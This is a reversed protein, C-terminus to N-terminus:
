NVELSGTNQHNKTEHSGEPYIKIKEIIKKHAHRVPVKEFTDEKFLDFRPRYKDSNNTVPTGFMHPGDSGSCLTQQQIYNPTRYNPANLMNM